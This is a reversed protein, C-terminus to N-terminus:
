RCARTRLIISRVPPQLPDRGRIPGTITLEGQDVILAPQADFPSPARLLTRVHGSVISVVHLEMRNVGTLHQILWVAAGESPAILDVVGSDLVAVSSGVTSASGISAFAEAGTLKAGLGPSWWALALGSSTAAAAPDFVGREGGLLVRRWRIVVARRAAQAKPTPAQSIPPSSAAVRCCAVVGCKAM